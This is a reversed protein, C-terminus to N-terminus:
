MTNEDDGETLIFPILFAPFFIFCWYVVLIELMDKNTYLFMAPLYIVFALVATVIGAYYKLLEGNKM